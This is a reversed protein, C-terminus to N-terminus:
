KPFNWYPKNPYQHLGRNSAGINNKILISIDTIVSREDGFYGHGLLSTNVETADITEMGETVFPSGKKAIGIREAKHLISSLLLAHDTKSIYSTYRKGFQKIKPFKQKFIDVYVDAAVFVIQELKSNPWRSGSLGHLMVRNGMSHALLHLNNWPGDELGLLFSSFSEASLFAREEDAAYGPITGQSPWSFLVVRGSFQLDFAFQAARRAADEFTVNYGHLFVLLGCSTEKDSALSSTFGSQSLTNVNGLVVYRRPDDKKHLFEWWKHKELRGIRHRGVPITVEAIGYSLKEDPDSCFMERDSTGPQRNTAFYVKVLCPETESAITRGLSRGTQETGASLNLADEPEVALAEAVTNRTKIHPGADLQSRAILEQVYEYAPTEEVLDLLDDLLMDVEDPTSVSTLRTAIGALEKHFNPEDTGIRIQVSAWNSLLTDLVAYQQVLEQM